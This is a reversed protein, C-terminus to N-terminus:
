SKQRAGRAAGKPFEPFERPFVLQQWHKLPRGNSKDGCNRFKRFARAPFEQIESLRACM